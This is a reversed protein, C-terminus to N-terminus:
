GYVEERNTPHFEQGQSLLHEYQVNCNCNLCTDFLRRDYEAGCIPCVAWVEHNQNM